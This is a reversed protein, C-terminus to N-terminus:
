IPNRLRISVIFTSKGTGTKGIVLFVEQNELHPLAASGDEISQRLLHMDFPRTMAAIGGQQNGLVEVDQNSSVSSNFENDEYEMITNNNSCTEMEENDPEIPAALVTHAMEGLQAPGGNADKWKRTTLSSLRLWFLTLWLLM